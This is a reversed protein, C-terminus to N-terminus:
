YSCVTLYVKGDLGTKRKFDNMAKDTYYELCDLECYSYNGSTVVEM